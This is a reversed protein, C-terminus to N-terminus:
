VIRDDFPYGKKELENKFAKLFTFDSLVSTLKATLEENNLAIESAYNQIIRLYYELKIYIEKRYDSDSPTILSKLYQLKTVGIMTIANLQSSENARRMSMLIDGKVSNLFINNLQGYFFLLDISKLLLQFRYKHGANIVAEISNRFPLELYGLSAGDRNKLLKEFCELESNDLVTLLHEKGSNDFDCGLIRMALTSYTTTLTNYFLGKKYYLIQENFKVFYRFSGTIASGERHGIGHNKCAYGKPILIPLALTIFDRAEEIIVKCVEDENFLIAKDFYREMDYELSWFLYMNDYDRYPIKDLNKLVYEELEFRKRCVSIAASTNREKISFQFLHLFLDTIDGYVKLKDKRKREDSINACLEFYKFCEKTITGVTASDFEKVAVTGIESLLIYPNKYLIDHDKDMYKVEMTEMDPDDGFKRVIDKINKRSQSKRLLLVVSPFLCLFSIGCLIIALYYLSTSYSSAVKTEGIYYSAYTLFCITCLLLTFPRKILASKFFNLFVYRGFNKYFINFSLVIFSFTIGFFISLIKLLSEIINKQSEIPPTNYLFPGPLFIFMNILVIVALCVVTTFDIFLYDSYPINRLKYFWYRFQRSIEKMQFIHFETYYLPVVETNLFSFKTFRDSM